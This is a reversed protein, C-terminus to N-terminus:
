PARVLGVGVDRTPLYPLAEASNELQRIVYSASFDGSAVSHQAWLAAIGAVHPTAMSTGSMATLAGDGGVSVIGVGPAAIRASHNSFRAVKFPTEANATRELAAVSVFSEGVAPPAVAIAYDPRRSENGAAAVVVSSAKGLEPLTVLRSLLDFMRICARYGELALSTAEMPSYGQVTLRQQYGPFDIGLSMSIIHARESLAWQMGRYITDTSGGTESLVKGILARSIGRAVGIRTGAVDHGFITGACHTGHGVVDHPTEDTFNKTEIALKKFAEHAQWGQVIGTDLVAVTVGEGAREDAAAAGVADIGWSAVGVDEDPAALPQVLTFPMEPVTVLTNRDSEIEARDNASLDPIIEARIQEPGFRDGGMSISELTSSM